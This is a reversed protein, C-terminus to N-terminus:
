AECGLRQKGPLDKGVHQYQLLSIPIHGGAFVLSSILLPISHTIASGLLFYVVPFIAMPVPVFFLPEYLWRYERRHSFFRIWCIYYILLMFMMGFAAILEPLGTIFSTFFLPSIISGFLGLREFVVLIVPERPPNAPIKTPTLLFYLLNPILVLVPIILSLPNFL